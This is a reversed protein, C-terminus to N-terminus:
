SSGNVPFRLITKMRSPKIRRFDSLYIEHHFIGHDMGSQVYGREEMFAHAKEMTIPEASYPGVHLIQVCRGERIREFSVRPIPELDKKKAAALARAAEATEKDVYDPMRILLKWFWEERPVEHVQKRLDAWWWVGELKPVTFDRNEKKCLGKVGYAVTFLAEVSRAFYEGDPSGQGEVTLYPLEPFEVLAPELGASYYTKDTKALDLKM